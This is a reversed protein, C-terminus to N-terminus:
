EGFKQFSFEGMKNTRKLRIQIEAVQCKGYCFVSLSRGFQTATDDRGM